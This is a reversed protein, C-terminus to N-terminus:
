APYLLAAYRKLTKKDEVQAAAIDLSLHQSLFTGEILSLEEVTIDVYCFEVNRM